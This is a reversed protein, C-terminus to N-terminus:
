SAPNDHTSEKLYKKTLKRNFFITKLFVTADERKVFPVACVYNNINILYMSQGPYKAFNPHPIIDVVAGMEIAAIIEEFSIGREAILTKNKEPSFEYCINANLMNHIYLLTRSKDIIQVYVAFKTYNRLVQM